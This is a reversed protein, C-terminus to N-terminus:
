SPETWGVHTPCRAFRLCFLERLVVLVLRVPEGNHIGDFLFSRLLVRRTHQNALVNYNDFRPLKSLQNVPCIPQSKLPLLRRRADKEM